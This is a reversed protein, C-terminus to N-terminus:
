RHPETLAFSGGAAACMLAGIPLWVLGAPHYLVFGLGVSVMLVRLAFFPYWWPSNYLRWRDRERM